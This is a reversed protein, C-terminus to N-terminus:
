FVRGFRKGDFAYVAGPTDGLLLIRGDRLQTIGGITESAVGDEAGYNTFTEGDWRWVGSRVTGFWMVGDHDELISFARHLTPGACDGPGLRHKATFHTVDDGELVIVGYGNDALWLRGRSDALLGRIGVERPDESRGMRARDVISLEAGGFGFVARMTGFWITGDRGRVAGTTPYYWDHAKPNDAVPFAHFAIEGGHLSYMGPPGPTEGLRQPIKSFWVEGDDSAWPLPEMAPDLTFPGSFRTGDWRCVTTGSQFWLDGAPGAQVAAGGPCCFGDATDLYSLTKGDFRAVYETAGFWLTGDRDEVLSHIGRTSRLRAPTAPSDPKLLAGGLTSTGSSGPDRGAPLTVDRDSPATESCAALVVLLTVIV